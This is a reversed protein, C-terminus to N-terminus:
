GGNRRMAFQLTQDVALATVISTCERGRDSVRRCLSRCESTLFATGADAAHSM